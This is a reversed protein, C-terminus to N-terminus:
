VIRANISMRSIIAMIPPPWAMAVPTTSSFALRM